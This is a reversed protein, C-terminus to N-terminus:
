RDKDNTLTADTAIYNYGDKGAVINVEGNSQAYVAAVVDARNGVTDSSGHASSLIINSGKSEDQESIKHTLNVKTNEGKAYIVGSVSNDGDIANLDVNSASAAQIAHGSGFGQENTTVNAYINNNGSITKLDVISESDAYIGYSNATIENNNEIAKLEVNGEDLSWIGTDAVISNGKALLDIQTNTGKSYIGTAKDSFIVNYANEAELNAKAGSQARLAIGDISQVINVGTQAIVDVKAETGGAYVGTTTGYILNDIGSNINVTSANKNPNNTLNQQIYIGYASYNDGEAIANIITSGKKADIDIDSNTSLIGIAQNNKANANIQISEEADVDVLAKTDLKDNNIDNNNYYNYQANIGYALGNDNNASVIVNKAELIQEANATNANTSIGWSWNGTNNATISINDKSKLTNISNNTYVGYSYGGHGQSSVIMGKDANMTLYGEGYSSASGNDARIAYSNYGESNVEIEGSINAEFIAKAGNTAIGTNTSNILNEASKTNIILNGQIDKSGTNILMKSNQNILIAGNQAGQQGKSYSNISIDKGATLTVNGGENEGVSVGFNNGELDMENGTVVSISGMKAQIDVSANDAIKIGFNSGVNESNQITTLNVDGYESVINIHGDKNATIASAKDGTATVNVDNIANVIVNSETNNQDANNSKGALIGYANGPRETANNTTEIDLRGTTIDITGNEDAHIGYNNNGNNITIIKTEQTIIGTSNNNEVKISSGKASYLGNVANSDNDNIVTINNIKGDLIVNGKEGTVLIGNQTGYINNENGSTITVTGSSVNIGTQSTHTGKEDTYQGIYNNNGATVNIKGEQNSLIGNINGEIVIDHDAIVNTTGTGDSLIGNEEEGVLVIDYGYQDDLTSIDGQTMRSSTINIIGTGSNHVANKGANVINSGNKAHIIINGNGQAYIGDKGTNITNNNGEIYLNGNNSGARLGHAEKIGTFINDNSAIINIDKKGLNDIIAMDRDIVDNKTISIENNGNTATIVIDNEKSDEAKVASAKEVNVINETNTITETVQHNYEEAFVTGYISSSMLLSLVIARELNKHRKM